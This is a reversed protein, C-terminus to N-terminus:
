TTSPLHLRDKETLARLRIPIAAPIMSTFIMTVSSRSKDGSVVILSNATPSSSTYAKYFTPEAVIDVKNVKVHSSQGSYTDLLKEITTDESGTQTLWNITVDSQLDNLITKTTDGITFFNRILSIM